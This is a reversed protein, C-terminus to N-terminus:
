LDLMFSPDPSPTADAAGSLGLATALLAAALLAGPPTRTNNVIHGPNASSAPMMGAGRMGASGTARALRRTAASAFRGDPAPPPGSSACRQACVRTGA